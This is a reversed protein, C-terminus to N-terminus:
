SSAFALSISFAVMFHLWVIKLLFVNGDNHRAWSTPLIYVGEKYPQKAESKNLYQICHALDCQKSHNMDMKGLLLIITIIITIKQFVKKVHFEMYCFAVKCSAWLEYKSPSLPM